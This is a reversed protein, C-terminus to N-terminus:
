SGAASGAAGSSGAASGAAGSDPQAAELKQLADKLENDIDRPEQPEVKVGILKKPNSRPLKASRASAPQTASAPQPAEPMSVEVVEGDEDEDFLEEIPKFEDAEEDYRTTENLVEAVSELQVVTKLFEQQQADKREIHLRRRELEAAVHQAPVAPLLPHGARGFGSNGLPGSLARSKESMARFGGAGWIACASASKMQALVRAAFDDMCINSVHISIRFAAFWPFALHRWRVRQLHLYPIGVNLHLLGLVLLLM